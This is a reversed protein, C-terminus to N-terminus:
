ITRLAKILHLGNHFLMEVLEKLIYGKDAYLSGIIEKLFGGEKIPTRDDM